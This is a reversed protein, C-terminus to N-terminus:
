TRARGIQAAALVIARRTSANVNKRAVTTFVRCDQELEYNSHAPLSVEVWFCDSDEVFNINLELETALSLADGGNDLPNWQEYIIGGDFTISDTFGHYKGDISKAAMNLLEVDSFGLLDNTSRAERQVTLGVGNQEPRENLEQM